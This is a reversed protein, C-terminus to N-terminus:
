NHGVRRLGMSSLGGPQETWPITWALISSHTAMEKELISNTTIRFCTTNKKLLYLFGLCNLSSLKRLFARAEEGGEVYDRLNSSVRTGLGWQSEVEEM